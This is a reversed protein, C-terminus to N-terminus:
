TETENDKGKWCDEKHPCWACEFHPKKLSRYGLPSVPSNKIRDFKQLLLDYLTIDFPIIEKYLLETNKNRVVFLAQSINSMGMYCQCQCWYLFKTAQRGKKVLPNYQEQKMTKIELVYREGTKLDRVIGDMEGRFDPISSQVNINRKEVAYGTRELHKCIREEEWKGREFIDRQQYTYSAYGDGQTEHLNKWLKLECGEGLGSPGLRKRIPEKFVLSQLRELFM